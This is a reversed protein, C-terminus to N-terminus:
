PLIWEKGRGAIKTQPTCRQLRQKQTVSGIKKPSFERHRKFLHKKSCKFLIQVWIIWFLTGM